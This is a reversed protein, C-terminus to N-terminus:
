MATARRRRLRRRHVLLPGSGLFAPGGTRAPLHRRFVAHGRGVRVPRRADIANYGGQSRTSPRSSRRRCARAASSGTARSAATPRTSRSDRTPDADASLDSIAKKGACPNGPISQWAPAANYTSCGSGTGAWATEASRAGTADVFLTTGGVGIVNTASAPFLVGYAATAPRPLSRSARRPRTTTPRPSARRTTAPSATATRSRCPRPRHEVRDDGGDRSERGLRTRRRSAPHQM